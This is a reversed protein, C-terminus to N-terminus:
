TNSKTCYKSPHHSKTKVIITKHLLYELLSHMILSYHLTFEHSIQLFPYFEYMYSWVTLILLAHMFVVGTRTWPALKGTFAPHLINIKFALGM